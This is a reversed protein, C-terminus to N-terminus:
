SSGVSNHDVTSSTNLTFGGDVSLSHRTQHKWLVEMPLLSLLLCESVVICRHKFLKFCLSGAAARPAAPKIEQYRWCQGAASSVFLVCVFGVQFKRQLLFYSTHSPISGGVPLQRDSANAAGPPRVTCGPQVTLATYARVSLASLM